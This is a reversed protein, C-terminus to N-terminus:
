RNNFADELSGGGFRYVTWEVNNLDEMRIKVTNHQNYDGTHIYIMSTREPTADEM